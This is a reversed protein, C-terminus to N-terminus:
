TKKALDCFFEQPVLNSGLSLDPRVLISIHVKKKLLKLQSTVLAELKGAKLDSKEAKSNALTLKEMIEKDKQEQQAQRELANQQVRKNFLTRTEEYEDLLSNKLIATLHDVKKSYNSLEEDEYEVVMQALPSEQEEDSRGLNETMIADIIIPNQKITTNSLNQEIKVDNKTM